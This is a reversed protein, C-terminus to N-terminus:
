ATRRRRGAPTAGDPRAADRPRGGEGAGDSESARRGSLRSAARRVLDIVVPSALAVAAADTFPLRFRVMAHTAAHALAGCAVVAPVAWAAAPAERRLRIWGAAAAAYLATWALGSALAMAAGYAAPNAWPRFFHLFRALVLFAFAGPRGRAFGLGERLWFGSQGRPSLKGTEALSSRLRATEVTLARDQHELLDAYGLSAYAEYSRDNNGLWFVYGGLNTVPILEGSSVYNRVTWPAVTALAAALVVAALLTRRRGNCPLFAAAWAPVVVFGLLMTPRTLAALGTLLGALAARGAARRADASCDRSLDVLCILLAAVGVSMLAETSLVASHWVFVPWVSALAFAALGARGGWLRAALIGCLVCLATGTAAQAAAAVHLDDPLFAYFAALVLPLLPPRSFDPAPVPREPEFWRVHDVLWGRGAAVNSAIEHYERGDVWLFAGRRIQIAGAALRLAFCALVALALLRGRMVHRLPVHLVRLIRRRVTVGDTGDM